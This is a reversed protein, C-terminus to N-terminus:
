RLMWESAETRQLDREPNVKRGTFNAPLRRFRLEPPTGQLGSIGLWAPMERAQSTGAAEATHM